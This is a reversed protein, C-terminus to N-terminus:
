LVATDFSGFACGFVLHIYVVRTLNSFEADVEIGVIGITVLAVAVLLLLQAVLIVVAIYVGIGQRAASQHCLFEEHRIRYPFSLNLNSLFIGVGSPVTTELVVLAINGVAVVLLM